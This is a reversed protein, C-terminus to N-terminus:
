ASVLYNGNEDEQLDLETVVQHVYQVDSRIRLLTTMKGSSKAIAPSEGLHPPAYQSVFVSTDDQRATAVSSETSFDSTREAANTALCGEQRLPLSTSVLGPYAFRRRVALGSRRRATAGRPM